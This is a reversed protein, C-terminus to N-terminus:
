PRKQACSPDLTYQVVSMASVAKGAKEPPVLPKRFM